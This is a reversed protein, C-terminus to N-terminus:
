EVCFKVALIKKPENIKSINGIFTTPITSMSALPFGRGGARLSLGTFSLYVNM